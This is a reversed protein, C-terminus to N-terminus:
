KKVQGGSNRSTYACTIIIKHVKLQIALVANCHYIIAPVVGLGLMCLRGVQRVTM